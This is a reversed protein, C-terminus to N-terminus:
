KQVIWEAGEQFIEPSTGHGQFGISARILLEIPAQRVRNAHAKEALRSVFDFVNHTGVRLDRNGITYRIKKHSLADLHHDLCLHDLNHLDKMEKAFPLSILPAFGLIKHIKNHRAAIHTALYAGRSLGAIAISSCSTALLDDITDLSEEIFPTIPDRGARFESAWYKIAEEKKRGPEHGPIMFSFVRREDSELAKSFQNFPDLHLSDSDSLALYLVAPLKGASLPPGLFSMKM